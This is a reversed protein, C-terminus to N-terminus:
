EKYVRTQVMNQVKYMIRGDVSWVNKVDHREEVKRLLKMKNTTLNETIALQKEKKVRFSKKRVNYGTFKIIM